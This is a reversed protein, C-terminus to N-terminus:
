SDLWEDFSLLPKGTNNDNGQGDNACFLYVNYADDLSGRNSLEWLESNSMDDEESMWEGCSNCTMAILVGNVDIAERWEHWCIIDTNM